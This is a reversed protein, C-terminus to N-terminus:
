RGAEGWKGEARGGRKALFSFLSFLMEHFANKWYREKDRIKRLVVGLCEV